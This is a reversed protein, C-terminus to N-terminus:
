AVLAKRYVRNHSIWGPEFCRSVSNKPEGVHLQPIFNSLQPIPVIGIAALAELIEKRGSSGSALDDYLAILEGIQDVAAFDSTPPVFVFPVCPLTRTDQIAQAATGLVLVRPVFRVENVADDVTTTWPFPHALESASTTLEVAGPILANEYQGLALKILSGEADLCYSFAAM